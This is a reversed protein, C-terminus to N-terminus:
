AFLRTKIKGTGFQDPSIPFSAQVGKPLDVGTGKYVDSLTMDPAQPTAHVAYTKDEGTSPDPVHVFHTNTATEGPHATWYDQLGQQSGDIAVIRATPDNKRLLDITGEQFKQYKMQDELSYNAIQHAMQYNTLVHIGHKKALDRIEVAEKYTVSRLGSDKKAFRLWLGPKKDHHKALWVSWDNKSKFLRTVFSDAAHKRVQVM